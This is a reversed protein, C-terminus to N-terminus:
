DAYVINLRCFTDSEKKSMLNTCVYELLFTFIRTHIFVQTGRSVSLRLYVGSHGTLVRNILHHTFSRLPTLVFM